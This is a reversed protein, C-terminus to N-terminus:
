NEGHTDGKKFQLHTLENHNISTLGGDLQNIDFSEIWDSSPTDIHGKIIIKHNHSM